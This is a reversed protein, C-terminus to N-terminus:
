AGLIVFRASNWRERCVLYRRWLGMNCFTTCEGKGQIENEALTIASEANAPDPAYFGRGRAAPMLRSLIGGQGKHDPLRQRM